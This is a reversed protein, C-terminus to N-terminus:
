RPPAALFAQISEAAIAFNLGVSDKLTFDVVGVVNGRM